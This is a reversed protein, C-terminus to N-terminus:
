KENEAAKTEADYAEEYQSLLRLWFDTLEEGEKESEADHIRLWGNELRSALSTSKLRRAQGM